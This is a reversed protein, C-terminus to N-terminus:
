CALAELRARLAALRREGVRISKELARRQTERNTVIREPEPPRYKPLVHRWAALMDEWDELLADMPRTVMASPVDGTLQKIARGFSQPSSAGVVLAASAISIGEVGMVARARVLRVRVRFKPITPLGTRFWASALSTACLGDVHVLTVVRVEEPTACLRWLIDRAPCPAVTRVLVARLAAIAGKLAIEGQAVQPINM